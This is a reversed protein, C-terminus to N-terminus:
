HTKNFNTEKNFFSLWKTVTELSEELSFPTGHGSYIKVQSADHRSAYIDLYKQLSKYQKDKDSTYLNYRGVTGYMVFDGSIIFHGFDYISTGLSHGPLHIAKFTFSGLHIDTDHTFTVDPSSSPLGVNFDDNNLLKEDEKHIIIPIKLSEKLKCNSYVHDYHGHTNIIGVPKNEITKLIWESANQGPDIIITEKGNNILYCNTKLIGFAKYFIKM